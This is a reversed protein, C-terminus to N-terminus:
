TCDLVVVAAPEIRIRFAWDLPAALWRCLIARMSGAHAVAVVTEDHWAARAGAFWDGARAVVDQFSEGGPTGVRVWDNMWAALRVHDRQELESWLVGDWDGFNMERLRADYTVPLNWHRALVDASSRARGLDSAIIRDPRVPLWTAARVIAEAGAPSLPVDCHGICRGATNLAAGHRILYLRM